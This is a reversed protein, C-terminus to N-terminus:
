INAGGHQFHIPIEPGPEIGELELHECLHELGQRMLDQWSHFVDVLDMFEKHPALISFEAWCNSCVLHIRWMEVLKEADGVLLRSNWGCRSCVTLKTRKGTPVKELYSWGEQARDIASLSRDSM